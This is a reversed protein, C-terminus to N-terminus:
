EKIVEKEFFDKIFIEQTKLNFLLVKSVTPIHGLEKQFDTIEQWCASSILHVHKYKTYGHHHADGTVFIDPIEELVMLNKEIPVFTQRKGYQPMLDRRKLIEIMATYPKDMEAAKIETYIGHLSAGHYLLVKYGEIVVWSPSGLLHMNEQKSIQPLYNDPIAPQPDSLRVADHNGSTIFIDIDKRIKLMYEEFLEYQKYIDTIALENFQKPYVGVGDVVDGVVVMYKIKKAIEKDEELNGNVWEIFKLFEKERFKKSGVHVDGIVALYVDEDLRYNKKEFPIDPYIVENVVLMDKSLVSAKFGLVNDELIEKHKLFEKEDKNLIVLRIQGTPDDVTLILNENKSIRKEYVMGIIDVKKGKVQTKCNEISTYEFNPRTKIMKSIKEYKDLFMKHFDEISGQSYNKGTIDYKELIHFNKTHQKKELPKNKIKLIEQENIFLLDKEKLEKIIEKYNHKSLHKLSDETLILGNEKAYKIIEQDM